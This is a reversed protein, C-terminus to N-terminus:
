RSKTAAAARVQEVADEVGLARLLDTATARVQGVLVNIAFGMGEELSRTAEGAALLASGRASAEGGDSALAPELRRAAVALHRVAAILGAPIDPELEVARVGARALVRANRMAFEVQPVARVYRDIRGRESWQSPALRVTEEGMVVADRLGALLGDTARARDLAREMAALDRAELATAVDGLVAALEAFVPTAARQVLKVPNRPAVVLVAIGVAGGVLADVFRTPVLGHSPAVVTAVLVASSAAQSVVIAGGGLLIAGSMALIVVLAVQGPGRGIGSILADGILIGVAVGVVMEIARKTHKGPGLGLAIVAAVPAFFASGHGLVDHALYWALGAAVSTQLLTAGTVRLVRV